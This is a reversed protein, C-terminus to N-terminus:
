PGVLHRGLSFPFASALALESPLLKISDRYSSLTHPSLARQRPLYDVFFGRLLLRPKLAKPADYL